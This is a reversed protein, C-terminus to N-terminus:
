KGLGTFNLLQQRKAAIGQQQQTPQRAPQNLGNATRLTDVQEAYMAAEDPHAGRQIMNEYVQAGTNQAALRGLDSANTISQPLFNFAMHVEHM